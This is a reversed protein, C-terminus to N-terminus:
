DQRSEPGEQPPQASDRSLQDLIQGAAAVGFLLFAPSAVGLAPPVWWLPTDAGQNATSGVYALAGSVVLLLAPVVIRGRAVAIVALLTTGPVVVALMPVLVQRHVAQVAWARECEPTHTLCEGGLASGIGIALAALIWLLFIGFAVVLAFWWNTPRKARPLLTAETGDM